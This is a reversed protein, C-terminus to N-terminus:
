VEEFLYNNDILRTKGIRVALLLVSNEDVRDVNELTDGDCIKVYDIQADPERGIRERVLGILRRSHSEGHRAATRAQRLADVLALAQKREEASLFINRSSMALGDRERVTPMGVVEIPLNLDSVMRRLVTLQQFDKRGFLAMHPQVINFLKCVVTTVGRFHGPRSEGCLTKTLGEVNVYTKYGNPYMSEAGPHFLIDVGAEAALEADRKLDRPYSAFDEKPGFQTPNVFISAVLLDGHKRGERMLSLHGEHLCGMTPVMVIRKGDRRAELCRNQIVEIDNIIEMTNCFFETDPFATSQVPFLEV